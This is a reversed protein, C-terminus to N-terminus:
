EQELLVSLRYSVRHGILELERSGKAIEFDYKDHDIKTDKDKALEQYNFINSKGKDSMAKYFFNMISDISNNLEVDDRYAERIRSEQMAMESGLSQLKLNSEDIKRESLESDNEAQQLMWLYATKFQENQQLGLAYDLNEEFIQRTRILELQLNNTQEYYNIYTYSFTKVNRIFDNNVQLQDKNSDYINNLWVVGFAVVLTTLSNIVNQNFIKKLFNGVALFAIRIMKTSSLLKRKM